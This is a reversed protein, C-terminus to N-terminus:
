KKERLRFADAFSRIHDRPKSYILNIVSVRRESYSRALDTVLQDQEPAAPAYRYRPAPGSQQTVYGQARLAELRQATWDPEIRLEKAVEQASWDQGARQWLLLLVELEAVSSIRDIIFQRVPGSIEEASM